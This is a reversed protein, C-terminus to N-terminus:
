VPNTTPAAGLRQELGYIELGRLRKVFEATRVALALLGDAFFFNLSLSIELSRVHHWWGSPLYLAEGAGVILEVPQVEQALPFRSYDPKNPDFRSYNPLASRFPNSYLWPTAARPYILFRKRGVLQLFINEAVDRHLPASTQPASLWFRSVRWPADACYPPPRVAEALEPLWKEPPAAVYFQPWDGRELRDLYDGLGITEFTVGVKPDHNLQGDTTPMGSVLRDGFRERLRGISWDRGGPVDDMLGDLVVPRSARRIEAFRAM